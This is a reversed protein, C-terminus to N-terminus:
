PNNKIDERSKGVLQFCPACDEHSEGALQSHANSNTSRCARVNQAQKKKCWRGLSGARSFLFGSDFLLASWSLPRDKDARVAYSAESTIGVMASPPPLLDVGNCLTALPPPLFPEDGNLEVEKGKIAM